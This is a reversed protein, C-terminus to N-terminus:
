FSSRLDFGIQVGETDFRPVSSDTRRGTVNIVPEFGYFEVNQLGLDVRLTTIKDDRGAPDFVSTEYVRYQETWSSKLDLGGGIDGFDYSVGLTAAQYALDTGDSTAVALQGTLGISQDNDFQRTWLARLAYTTVDDSGFRDTYRLSTLVSLRTDDGFFQQAGFTLNLDQRLAEGGAWDHSYTLSASFPQGTSLPTWQHLVGISMQAFSLSAGTVEPASDRAAQSMVYTRGFGGFEVSTRYGEAEAIRYRLNAQASLEVGSLPRQDAPVIWEIEGLIGGLYAFTIAENSNGSNVNNSPAVGFGLEVALPNAQRVRRFAGIALRERRDDPAIQIARRIWLQSRTYAEDAALLDAMTFAASFRQADSLATQWAMRGADRAESARGLDMLAQAHLLHVASSTPDAEILVTIVELAAGAQGARLLQRAFGPGDEISIRVPATSDASQAVVPIAGLGACLGLALAVCSLRGTM